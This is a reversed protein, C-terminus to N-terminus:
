AGGIGVEVTGTGLCNPCTEGDKKGSGSCEPCVDEAAAGQEGPPAEDGPAMQDRGKEDDVM